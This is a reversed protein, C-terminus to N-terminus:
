TSAYIMPPGAPDLNTGVSGLRHSFGLGFKGRLRPPVSFLDKMVLVPLGGFEKKWARSLNKLLLVGSIPATEENKSQKGVAREGHRRSETALGKQNRKACDTGRHAVRLGPPGASKKRESKEAILRSCGLGHLGSRSLSHSFFGSLIPWPTM